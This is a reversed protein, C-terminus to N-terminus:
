KWVMVRIPSVKADGGFLNITDASILLKTRNLHMKGQRAQFEGLPKKQLSFFIYLLYLRM